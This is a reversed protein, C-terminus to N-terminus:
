PDIAYSFGHGYAEVFDLTRDMAVREANAPLSHCVFVVNKQLDLVIVKSLGQAFHWRSGYGLLDGMGGSVVAEHIKDFLTLGPYSGPDAAMVARVAEPRYAYTHGEKWRVIVGPPAVASLRLALEKSMDGGWEEHFLPKRGTAVAGLHAGVETSYGRPLALARDGSELGQLVRQVRGAVARALDRKPLDHRGPASDGARRDRSDGQGDSGEGKWVVRENDFRIQGGLAQLLEDRLEQPIGDASAELGHTFDEPTASVQDGSKLLGLGEADARSVDAVWTGTGFDFPPWPTGFRNIRSWIPDGKLAVLRGERGDLGSGPYVKGGAGRWREHWHRKMKRDELRVLEQAPFEDLAGPEMDGLYSAYGEARQSQVTYILNLRPISTIDQIGGAKPDGVPLALGEAIAKSRWKSVLTRRDLFAEGGAAQERVQGLMDTLDQQMGGLLQASTVTSSFFASERIATPFREWQASTAPSPAIRRRRLNEVSRPDPGFVLSAAPDAM